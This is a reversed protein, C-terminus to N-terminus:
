IQHNALWQPSKLLSQTVPRKHMMRAVNKGPTCPRHEAQHILKPFIGEGDRGGIQILWLMVEYPLGSEWFEPCLFCSM